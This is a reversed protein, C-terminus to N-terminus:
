KCNCNNINSKVMMKVCISYVHFIQLGQSNKYEQYKLSNYVECM